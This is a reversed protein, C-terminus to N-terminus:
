KPPISFLASELKEIQPNGTDAFAHQSSNAPTGDGVYAEVNHGMPNYSAPNDSSENWFYM